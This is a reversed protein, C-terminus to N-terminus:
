QKQFEGYIILCSLKQGRGHYHSWYAPWKGGGGHMGAVLREWEAPAGVDSLGYESAADYEKEFIIQGSAVCQDIKAYYQKYNRLQGSAGDFEHLRFRPNQGIWTTLSPAAFQVGVAAGGGGGAPPVLRLTDDHLHGYVQFKIASAHRQLQALWRQNWGFDM